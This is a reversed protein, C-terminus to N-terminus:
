NKCNDIPTSPKLRGIELLASSASQRVEERSDSYSSKQLSDLVYQDGPRIKELAFAAAERVIWDTDTLMHDVLARLIFPDTRRSEGLAFVVREKVETMNEYGLIKVLDEFVRTEKPKLRGLVNAAEQRLKYDISKAAIVALENMIEKDRSKMCGLAKLFYLDRWRASPIDNKRLDIEPELSCILDRKERTFSQNMDGLIIKSIYPFYDTPTLWRLFKALNLLEIQVYPYDQLGRILTLFSEKGKENEYIRDLSQIEGPTHTACLERNKFYGRIMPAYLAQEPGSLSKEIWDVKEERAIGPDNLYCVANFGSSGTTQTLTTEELSKFLVDNKKPDIKDLYSSYNTGTKALYDNLYPRM